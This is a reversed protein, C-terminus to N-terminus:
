NLSNTMWFCFGLVPRGKSYCPLFWLCVYLVYMVFVIKKEGLMECNKMSRIIQDIM